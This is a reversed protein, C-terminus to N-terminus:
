PDICHLSELPNNTNSATLVIDEPPIGDVTLTIAALRCYVNHHGRIPKDVTSPSDNQDIKFAILFGKHTHNRTEPDIVETKEHIIKKLEDSMTFAKDMPSPVERDKDPDKPLCAAVLLASLLAAVLRWQIQKM